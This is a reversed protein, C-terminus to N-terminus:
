TMDIAEVSLGSFKIEAGAGGTMFSTLGRDSGSQARQMIFMTQFVPSRSPDRAPQLREVLLPFPYDQHDFAALIRQRVSALFDVFTPNDALNGRIVVPNIFDGVLASFEPRSRGATATGVLIDTQRTHRHLWVQYAAMLTMFLTSRQQKSLEKLGRFVDGDVTVYESDGAFTQVPPRPRDTPLDLSPLSGGLETKWYNWLREGEAGALMDAQWRVFDAYDTKLPALPSGRGDLESQYLAMFEGVCVILSWMDSVIHHLLFTLVAEDPNLRFLVCRVVPGNELDFPTHVEAYLRERWQAETWGAADVDVLPMPVVDNVRQVPRGDIEAFTTRLSDHRAVLKDIARRMAAVDLAGRLKVADAVNYATGTPDLRYMLWMAQQGYALPYERQSVHASRAAVTTTAAALNAASVAAAKEVATGQAASPAMSSPAAQSTAATASTSGAPVEANSLDGLAELAYGALQSLSPGELFRSMPLTVELSSEIVNKLEIVMLSDLGLSNLPQSVDIKDADLEMVRALQARFYDELVAHRGDAPAAIVAARLKNDSKGDDKRKGILDALFTPVTGVYSSGMKEWDVAMVGVNAAPSEMLRELTRMAGQPPLLQMGMANLRAEDANRAAM